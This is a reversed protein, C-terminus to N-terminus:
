RLPPPAASRLSPTTGASLRRKIAATPAPAAAPRPRPRRRRRIQGAGRCPPAARGHISCPATRGCPGHLAPAPSRPGPRRMALYPRCRAAPPVGVSPPLGMLSAGPGGTHGAPERTHGGPQAGERQGAWTPRSTDGELHQPHQPRAKRKNRKETFVWIQGLQQKFSPGLTVVKTTGVSARRRLFSCRVCNRKFRSSCAPLFSTSRDAKPQCCRCRM